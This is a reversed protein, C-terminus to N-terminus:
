PEQRKRSSRRQVSPMSSGHSMLFLTGQAECESVMPVAFSNKQICRGLFIAPMPFWGAADDCGPDGQGIHAYVFDRNENDPMIIERIDSNFKTISKTWYWNAKYTRVAQENWGGPLYVSAALTRLIAKRIGGIGAISRYVQFDYNGHHKPTTFAVTGKLM